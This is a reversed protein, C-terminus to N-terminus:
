CPTKSRRQPPYPVARARGADAATRFRSAALIAAVVGASTGNATTGPMLSAGVGEGPPEAAISRRPATRSDPYLSTVISWLTALLWLGPERLNFPAETWSSGRM